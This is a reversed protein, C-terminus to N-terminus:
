YWVRKGDVLKWHKGKKAESIKNRTEESHHRGYFCNNEGKHVESLKRKHEESFVKGKNAESLKKKHNESKPKGRHWNPKGKLADSMKKKAEESHHHGKHNQNGKHSESLKKKAEESMHKGKMPSSKGFMGNKEGKHANSNKKKTEETPTYEKKEWVKAIDEAIETTIYKFSKRYMMRVALAAAVRYGKNASKWIYFHALFHDGESLSVLNNDDDDQLEKEKKSWSRLFKHHLNRGKVVKKLYHENEVYLAQLKTWCESTTDFYKDWNHEM